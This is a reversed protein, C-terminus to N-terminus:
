LRKPKVLGKTVLEEYTYVISDWDHQPRFDEYDLFHVEDNKDFAICTPRLFTIMCCDLLWRIITWSLIYDKTKLDM